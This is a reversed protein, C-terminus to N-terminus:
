NVETTGSRATEESREIIPINWDIDLEFANKCDKEDVFWSYAEGPSPATITMTIQSNQSVFAGYQSIETVVAANDLDYSPDKADLWSKTNGIKWAILQNFTFGGEIKRVVDAHTDCM